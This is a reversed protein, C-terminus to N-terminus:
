QYQPYVFLDRALALFRRTVVIRIRALLRPPPSHAFDRQPTRPYGVYAIRDVGAYLCLM